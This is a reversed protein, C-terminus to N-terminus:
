SLLCRGDRCTSNILLIGRLGLFSSEGINSWLACGGVLDTGDEEVGESFDWASTKVGKLFCKGNASDFFVGSCAGGYKNCAQICASEPKVPIAGSLQSM